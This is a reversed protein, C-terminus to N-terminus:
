FNGDWGTTLCTSTLFVTRVFRFQSDPHSVRSVPISFTEAIRQYLEPINAFGSIRVQNSGHALECAFSFPQVRAEKDVGVGEGEMGMEDYDTPRPVM